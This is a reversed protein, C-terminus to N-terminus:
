EPRRPTPRRALAPPLRYGFAPRLTKPGPVPAPQRAPAKARELYPLKFLFGAFLWIYVNVPDQDVVWGKINEVALFLFFVTYCAAATKLGRDRLRSRVQMGGFFIAAYIMFYSLLGPVGLEVIAKTYYSEFNFPLATTPLIGGPFLYRAAGTNMGTGMGFPVMELARIPSDLIFTDSYGSTLNSTDTLVSLPDVGGLSLMVYVLVPVVFIGALFGKVRGDFIYMLGILMPIFVYAARSGCLFSACVIFYFILKANKKWKWDTEISMWIFALMVMSQLFGFYQTSFPFTSPIRFFQGGYDFTNFGQTVSQAESGYIQDMVSQYGFAAAFFWEMLGVACPVVAIVCMTRLLKVHDEQTNIYAGAAFVLPMYLLWVKTGLVGVFINPIAPNLCQVLVIFSFLALAMWVPNPVHVNKLDKPHLLFLSIYMPFFFVLDKALLALPNHGSLLVPIGVFPQFYILWKVMRRWDAFGAFWIALVIIGAFPAAIEEM